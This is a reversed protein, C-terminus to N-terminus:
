EPDGEESPPEDSPGVTGVLKPFQGHQRLKALVDGAWRSPLLVHRNGVPVADVDLDGLKQLTEEMTAPTDCAILAVNRHIVAGATTRSVNSLLDHPDPETFM